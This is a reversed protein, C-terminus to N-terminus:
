GISFTSDIFSSPQPLPGTLFSPMAVLAARPASVNRKFPRPLDRSTYQTFISAEYGRAIQWATDLTLAKGLDNLVLEWTIKTAAVPTLSRKGTLSRFTPSADYLQRFTIVGRYRTAKKRVGYTSPKKSTATTLLAKLTSPEFVNIIQDGYLASGGDSKGALAWTKGDPLVPQYLPGSRYLMGNVSISRNAGIEANVKDADWPGDNLHDRMLHNISFTRTIDAAGVGSGGLKFVGRRIAGWAGWKRHGLSGGEVVQVAEHSAIQAKLASVPDVALQANAPTALLTTSALAVALLVISRKM